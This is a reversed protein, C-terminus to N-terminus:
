RTTVMVWTNVRIVRCGPPRCFAQHPSRRAYVRDQGITPGVNVGTFHDVAALRQRVSGPFPTTQGNRGYADTYWSTPGNRNELRNGNIDM